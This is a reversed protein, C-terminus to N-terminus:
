FHLVAFEVVGGWMIIILSFVDLTLSQMQKHQISNITVTSLRVKVPMSVVDQLKCDFEERVWFFMVFPNCVVLLPILYHVSPM